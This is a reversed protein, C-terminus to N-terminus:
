LKWTIEDPAQCLPLSKYQFKPYGVMMAGFSQHGEPLALAEQMQQFTTAVAKFEALRQWELNQGM